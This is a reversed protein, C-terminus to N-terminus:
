SDPDDSLLIYVPFVAWVWCGQFTFRPSDPCKIPQLTLLHWSQQSSEEKSASTNLTKKWSNMKKQDNSAALPAGM